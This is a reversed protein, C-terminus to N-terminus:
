VVIKIFTDPFMKEIKNAIKSFDDPLWMEKEEIMTILEDKSFVLMEGKVVFGLTEFATVAKKLDTCNFFHGVGTTTIQSQQPM